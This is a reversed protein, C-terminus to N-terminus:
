KGDTATAPAGQADPAERGLLHRLAPELETRRWPHDIAQLRAPQLRQSALLMEDAAEGLALRMAFAPARLVTPRNLVRGLVRTFDENRVPHPTVANIPGDLRDDTLAALLVDLVDDRTIWSWWQQGSGLPGGAGLKFLPLMAGLAGGSPDLVLGLRPHVVRLGADRAPDCAAEWDRCVRALFDNGSDGAETLLTDGRSGYYGSASVSVLVPPRDGLKALAECLTRTGDIRSHYIAQKKAETWRGMIPEGALHIVGDLGILGDRNISEGPMWSVEDPGHAAGRVLRRVVHGGTRLYQVLATGIFGTSGTVLITM